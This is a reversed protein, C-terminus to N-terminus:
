QLWPHDPVFASDSQFRATGDQPNFLRFEMAADRFRPGCAHTFVAARGAALVPQNDIGVIGKAAVKTGDKALQYACGGAGPTCGEDSVGAWCREWQRGHPLVFMLNVRLSENSRNTVHIAEGERRLELQPPVSGAPAHPTTQMQAQLRALNDEFWALEAASSRARAGEADKHMPLFLGVCLVLLMVAAIVGRGAVGLSRGLFGALAVAAGSAIVFVGAAFFFFVLGGFSYDGAPISKWYLRTALAAIGLGLIWVSLYWAITGGSGPDDGHQSAMDKLAALMRPGKAVLLYVVILIALWSISM